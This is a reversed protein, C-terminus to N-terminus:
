SSMARRLIPRMPCAMARSPQQRARELRNPPIDEALMSLSTDLAIVIDVGHRRVKEMETGWQPQALALLYWGLGTILISTRLLRWEWSIPPILREVLRFTGFRELHRRRRRLRWFLFPFLLPLGLLLLLFEPRGFRM